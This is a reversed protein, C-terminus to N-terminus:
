PSAFIGLRESEEQISAEQLRLRYMENEFFLRRKKLEEKSLRAISAILSEFEIWEDQRKMFCYADWCHKDLLQPMQPEVTKAFYNLIPLSQSPSRCTQGHLVAADEDTPSTSIEGLKRKGCSM